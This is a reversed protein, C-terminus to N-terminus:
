ASVTNEHYRRCRACYRETIDAPNHSLVGCRLCLIGTSDAILAYTKGDRVTPETPPDVERALLAAKYPFHPATSASHILDTVQDLFADLAEQNTTLLTAYARDIEDILTLEVYM